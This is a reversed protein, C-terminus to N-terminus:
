NMERLHLTTPLITCSFHRKFTRIQLEGLLHYLTSIVYPCVMYMQTHSATCIKDIMSWDTLKDCLINWGFKDKELQMLCAM